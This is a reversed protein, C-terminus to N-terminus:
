VGPHQATLFLSVGVRDIMASRIRFFCECWLRLEAIALPSLEVLTDFDVDADADNGLHAISRNLGKSLVTALPVALRISVLKGVITAIKRAVVGQRHQELVGQMLSKLNMVKSEPVWVSCTRFNLDMGLHRIVDGGQLLSKKLSVRLGLRYLVSLVLTRIEMLQAMDEALFILDDIFFSCRIGKKRFLLCVRKVLKSFDRPASKLGMPLVLWRYIKGAHRFYLLQSLGKALRFQYFGKEFDLSFAVDGPRSMAMIDSLQEMRFSKDDVGLNVAKGSWCVREMVGNRYAVLLNCVVADFHVRHEPVLECCGMDVWDLVAKSVFEGENTSLKNSGPQKGFSDKNLHVSYGDVLWKNLWSPVREGYESFVEDWIYPESLLQGAVFASQWQPFLGRLKDDLPLVSARVGVLDKLPLRGLVKRLAYLKLLAPDEDIKCPVVDLTAISIPTGDM